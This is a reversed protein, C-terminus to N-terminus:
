GNGYSARRVALNHHTLLGKPEKNVDAGDGWGSSQQRPKRTWRKELASLEAGDRRVRRLCLLRGTEVHQRSCRADACQGARSRAKFDDAWDLLAQGAPATRNGNALMLAYTTRSRRRMSIAGKKGSTTASNTACDDRSSRAIRHVTRRGDSLRLARSRGAGHGACCRWKCIYDSRRRLAPLV